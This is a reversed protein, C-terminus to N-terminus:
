RVLKQMTKLLIKLDLGLSCQHVYELDNVLWDNFFVKVVYDLSYPLSDLRETVREGIGSNLCLVLRKVGAEALVRAQYHLLPRNALPLLTKPYPALAFGHFTALGGALVVATEPFQSM